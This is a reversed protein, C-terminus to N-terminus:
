PGPYRVAAAAGPAALLLVVGGATAFGNAVAHGTLALPSSEPLAWSCTSLLPLAVRSSTSAHNSTDV